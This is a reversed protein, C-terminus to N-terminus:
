NNEILNNKGKASITSIQSKCSGEQTLCFNDEFLDDGPLPNGCYPCNKDNLQSFPAASASWKKCFTCCSWYAM